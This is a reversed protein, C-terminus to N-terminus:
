RVLGMKTAYQLVEDDSMSDLDITALEHALEDTIEFNGDVFSSTPTVTKQQNMLLRRLALEFKDVDGNSNVYAELVTTVFDEM